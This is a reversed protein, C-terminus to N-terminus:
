AKLRYAIITAANVRWREDPTETDWEQVYTNPIKVILILGREIADKIERENELEVEYRGSATIAEYIM